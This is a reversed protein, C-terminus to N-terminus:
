EKKEGNMARFMAAQFVQRREIERVVEITEFKFGCRYCHYTRIIGDQRIPRLDTYDCNTCTM